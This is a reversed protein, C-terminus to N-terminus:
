AGFASSGRRSGGGDAGVRLDAEDAVGVEDEIRTAVLDQSLALDDRERADLEPEELHQEFGAAADQRAVLEEVLDVATVVGRDEVPRDVDVDATEALLEAVIGLLGPVHGGHPADAVARGAVRAGGRSSRWSGGILTRPRAPRIASAAMAVAPMPMAIRTTPTTMTPPSANEASITSAPSLASWARAIYSWDTVWTTTPAATTATAAASSM